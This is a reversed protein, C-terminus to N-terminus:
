AHIRRSLSAKYMAIRLSTTGSLASDRPDVHHRLSMTSTMMSPWNPTFV